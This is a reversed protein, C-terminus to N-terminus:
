ARQSAKKVNKKWEKDRERELFKRQDDVSLARLTQDRKEKKERDRKTQREEAKEDDAARRLKSQQEDRTQRLKRAVEPRFHATSVLTDPLRLFLAFLPGTTPTAATTTTISTTSLRTSLYIRKQATTEELKNPRDLPQDTVILHGFLDGAAAVVEILEATLLTETVEASESMVTLWNPLKPHDKTSTLSLDYREDRVKQMRDKHVIAWVVNDYASASSNGKRPLADAGKPGSPLPVLEAEKGDFPYTVAEMQETPTDLSAFVVGGVSEAAWSLPNYRKFLSLTIETYAVNQRGTAYTAYERQTKEKVVEDDIFATDSQSSGVKAASPGQSQGQGARFGVQAYENRLLPIHTDAWARVIRRNVRTGWLHVLIAILIFPLVLLEQGASQAIQSAGEAVKSVINDLGSM